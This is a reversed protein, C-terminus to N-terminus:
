REEGNELMEVRMWPADRENREKTTNKCDNFYLQHRACCLCTTGRIRMRKNPKPLYPHLDLSNPECRAPNKSGHQTKCFALIEWQEGKKYVRIRDKIEM